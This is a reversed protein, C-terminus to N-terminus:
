LRKQMITFTRGSKQFTEIAGWGARLYLGAAGATYLSLQEIGNSRALEELEAILRLAHGAGRHEPKVFLGALWPNLEPRGELDDECLAVMGIPEDNELMVLVTPMLTSGDACEREKRIVEELSVGNHKFFAEWRWAGTTEALEPHESTSVICIM